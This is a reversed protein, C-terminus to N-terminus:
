VPLMSHVFELTGRVEPDMFCKMGEKWEGKDLGAQIKEAWAERALKKIPIFPRNPTDIWLSVIEKARSILNEEEVIEDVMGIELAREVGVMDGFFM